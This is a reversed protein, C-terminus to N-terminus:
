RPRDAPRRGRRATRGASLTGGTAAGYRLRRTLRVALVGLIVAPGALVILRVAQGRELVTTGFLHGAGIWLTTYALTGIVDFALFRWYPLHGAGSLVAAFLRVGVSFRGFLVAMAGFRTFAATTKEVCRESGLSVRCYWALLRTGGLAGAAYLAHDGIVLGATGLLVLLGLDSWRDAVAGAVVLVLRGPFPFGTADIMGSVLVLTLQHREFWDLGPQLWEM